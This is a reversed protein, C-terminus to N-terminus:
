TGWEPETFNFIVRDQEWNSSVIPITRRSLFKKMITRDFESEPIMEISSETMTFKM